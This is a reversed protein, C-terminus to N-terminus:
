WYRPRLADPISRARGSAILSAGAAAAERLHNIKHFSPVAVASGAPGPKAGCSGTV